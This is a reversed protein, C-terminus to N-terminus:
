EIGRLRPSGSTGSALARYLQRWAFATLTVCLVAGVGLTAYFLGAGVWAPLWGVPLSGSMKWASPGGSFFLAWGAFVMFGSTLLVGLGSSVVDAAPPRTRGSASRILMLGALVFMGGIMAVLWRPAHIRADDAFLAAGIPFVGATIALLGWWRSPAPEGAM